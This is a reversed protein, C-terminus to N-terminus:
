QRVENILLRIPERVPQSLVASSGQLDGAAANAVGSKSVRAGVTIKDFMSLKMEPMMANADSLTVTMPLDIAALRVTALPMPPGGDAKAYVFLADNPAVQAKLEPSIDVQITVGSGVPAAEVSESGARAPAAAATADIPASSPAPAADAPQGMQQELQAIQESLQRALGGDPPLLQLLAKWSMLAAQNDGQLRRFVGKLWLARQNDGALKLAEDIYAEAQPPPAEPRAALGTAEGLQALLDADPPLLARAKELADRAKAYEQLELYTRGLLLWGQGDQPNSALRASLGEAASQLDIGGPTGADAAAPTASAAAAAPATNAAQAMGAARAQFSMAQPKGIQFYLLLTTAPVLALLGVAAILASKNRPPKLPADMLALLKLNIREREAQYEAESMEDNARKLKLADLADKLATTRRGLEDKSELLLPWLLFLLALAILLGAILYFQLM